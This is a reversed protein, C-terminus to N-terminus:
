HDFFYKHVSGTLPILVSSLMQNMRSAIKHPQTGPGLLRRPFKFYQMLECLSNFKLNLDALTGPGNQIDHTFFRCM